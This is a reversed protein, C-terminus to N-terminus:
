RQDVWMIADPEIGSVLYEEVDKVGEPLRVAILSARKGAEISGFDEAFGLARAGILTASELLRRAAVNPAVRKAEALEAFMNLDEVSALSDTGFAVPVGAEFFAELPPAGVGVYRNSRPCSVITAGLTKLKALEDGTLQVGHVVLVRSDLFGLDSLYEVPSQGPAAWVNTWVGLEELMRRVVGTGRRLLEVEGASEGLHV